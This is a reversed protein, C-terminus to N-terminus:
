RGVRLRTGSASPRRATATSGCSRAGAARHQESACRHQGPFGDRRGDSRRYEGHSPQTGHAAGRADAFLARDRSVRQLAPRREGPSRADAHQDPRRLHEAARLGHRRATHHTRQSRRDAGEGRLATAADCQSCRTGYYASLEAGSIPLVTRNLPTEQAEVRSTVRFVTLLSRLTVVAARTAPKKRM